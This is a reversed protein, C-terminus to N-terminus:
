DGAKAQKVTTEQQAPIRGIWLDYIERVINPSLKEIVVVNNISQREDFHKFCREMCKSLAPKIGASVPGYHRPHGGREAHFQLYQAARYVGTLDDGLKEIGLNCDSCLIGRVQGEADLDLRWGHKADSSKCCGCRREQEDFIQEFTARLVGCSNWLRRDGQKERFAEIQRAIEIDTYTVSGVLCNECPRESRQLHKEYGQQTGCAASQKNKKPM